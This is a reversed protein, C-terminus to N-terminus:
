FTIYEQLPLASNIAAMVGINLTVHDNLINSTFYIKPSM